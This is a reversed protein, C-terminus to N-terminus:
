FWHFRYRHQRQRPRYQRQGYLRRHQQQAGIVRKNRAQLQQHHQRRRPYQDHRHENQRLFAIGHANGGLQANVINHINNGCIAINHSADWVYVGAPTDNRGTTTLNRMEFGCVLIHHQNSITILAPIGVQNTGTGDIIPVEAAYNRLIIYGGAESGSKNITIQQNYTGGRVFVTTGPVVNAHNIAYQITKWPSALTGPNTDKGNTAVYYLTGTQAVVTIDDTVSLGNYTGTLRLVYTGAASFTVTTDEASPSGFTVNGPGSVKSWAKTSGTPTVTANLTVARGMTVWLNPGANVKPPENQAAAANVTVTLEDFSQLQATTQGDSAICLNRVTFFKSDYRCRYADAFIVTGPGSTKTWTQTVVGPPNPKGDDTVTADLNAVAPM